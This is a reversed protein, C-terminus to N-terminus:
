VICTLDYDEINFVKYDSYGEEAYYLKDDECKGPWIVSFPKKKYAMIMIKLVDVQYVPNFMVDFDKIIVEDPFTKLVRIFCKGLQMTRRNESYIILEEALLTNMAKAANMLGNGTSGCYIVPRLLGSINDSTINHEKIIIGM